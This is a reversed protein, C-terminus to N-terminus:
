NRKVDASIAVSSSNSQTIALTLLSDDLQGLSGMVSGILGFYTM